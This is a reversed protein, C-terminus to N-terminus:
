PTEGFLPREKAFYFVIEWEGAEFLQFDLKMSSRRQVGGFGIRDFAFTVTAREGDETTWKTPVQVLPIPYAVNYKVMTASMERDFGHVLNDWDTANFLAPDLPELEDDLFKFALSQGDGVRNFWVQIDGAELATGSEAGVMDTVATPRIDYGSPVYPQEPLPNLRMDNFFLRGGSGSVEVDFVYGSDPVAKVVTTTASHWMIFEGSHERIEFLPHDQWERKSEIEEM